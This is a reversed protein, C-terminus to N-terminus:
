KSILSASTALLGAGLYNFPVLPVISRRYDYLAKVVWRQPSRGDALFLNKSSHHSLHSKLRSVRDFMRFPCLLCRTGHILPYYDNVENSLCHMLHNEVDPNTDPITDANIQAAIM